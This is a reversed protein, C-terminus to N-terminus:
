RAERDFTEKCSLCCFYVTEGRRESRLRATATDVRMGCIPDIAEVADGVPSAESWAPKPGRRMQVIEAVISVAIEEPATAGIDLGAPAKLRNLRDVAVGRGKLTELVDAARKRSAVLSVYGAESALAWELAAEDFTGHTAVVV